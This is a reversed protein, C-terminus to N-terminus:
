SKDLLPVREDDSNQDSEITNQGSNHGNKVSNHGIQVNGHGNEDDARDATKSMKQRRQVFYRYMLIIIIFNILILMPVVVLVTIILSSTNGIWLFLLACSVEYYHQGSEVKPKVTVNFSKTGSYFIEKSYIIDSNYVCQCTYTGANDSVVNSLILTSLVHNPNFPDYKTILTYHSSNHQLFDEFKWTTITVNPSTSANYICTLRTSQGEDIEM